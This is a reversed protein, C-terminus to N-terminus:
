SLLAPQSFPMFTSLFSIKLAVISYAHTLSNSIALFLERLKERDPVFCSEMQRKLCGRM